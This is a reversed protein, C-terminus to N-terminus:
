SNRRPPRSSQLIVNRTTSSQITQNQLVFRSVMFSQCNDADLTTRWACLLHRLLSPFLSPSSHRKSKSMGVKSTVM